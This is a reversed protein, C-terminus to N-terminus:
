YKKKKGVAIGDPYILQFKIADAGCEKAIDVMKLARSLIQNHNSGAEAIFYVSNFNQINKKGLYFSKNFKM